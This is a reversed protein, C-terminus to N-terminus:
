GASVGGCRCEFASFHDRFCWLFWAFLVLLVGVVCLLAFRTPLGLNWPSVPPLSGVCLVVPSVCRRAALDLLGAAAYYFHEVHLCLLVPLAPLRLLACVCSYRLPTCPASFCCPVCRMLCSPWTAELLSDSPCCPMLTTAPPLPLPLSSCVCLAPVFLALGPPRLSM